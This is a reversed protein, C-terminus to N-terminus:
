QPPQWLIDRKMVKNIKSTFFATIIFGDKERKREKYIVLMAKRATFRKVAWFEDEYGKVIVDPNAVVELVEFYYGAMDDHNEVIHMWREDTLRIPVKNVSFAINIM